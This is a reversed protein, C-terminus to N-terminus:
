LRQGVHLLQESSLLIAGGFFTAVLQILYNGDVPFDTSLTTREAFNVPSSLTMTLNRPTPDAPGKVRLVITLAASLDIESDALILVTETAEM